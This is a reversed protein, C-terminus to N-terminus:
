RLEIGVSTHNAGAEGTVYSNGVGIVCDVVNVRGEVAEGRAYDVANLIDVAALLINALSTSIHLM